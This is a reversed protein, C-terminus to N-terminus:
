LNLNLGRGNKRSLNINKAVESDSDSFSSHMDIDIPKENSSSMGSLIDDLNPPGNMTPRGRSKPQSQSQSGIVDSMLNAFGPESTGMTNLTAKTFHSMLDPNQKFVEGMGPLSTKFMTNTLHFMFGSGGLMLILKLEPAMTAKEKYKEHLEEFIDDYDNVGEHVSESWGDLKISLPDFKGNLFEIATVAAVLMKRQFKVSQEVERREKIREYENKMETYDSDMTYNKDVKVGKARLRDLLKLMDVKEQIAEDYTKVKPADVRPAEPTITYNREHNSNNTNVEITKHKNSNDLSVESLDTDLSFINDSTNSDLTVSNNTLSDDNLLQNLDLLNDNENSTSTSTSTEVIPEKPQEVITSESIKSRNVLLDVGIPPKIIKIDNNTSLADLNIELSNHTGESKKLDIEEM